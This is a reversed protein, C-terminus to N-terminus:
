VTTLRSVAAPESVPRIGAYNFTTFQFARNAQRHIFFGAMHHQAAIWLHHAICLLQQFLGPLHRFM